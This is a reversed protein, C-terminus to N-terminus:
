NGGAAVRGDKKGKEGRRGMLGLEAIPTEFRVGAGRWDRRWEGEVGADEGARWRRRGLAQWCACVSFAWLTIWWRASGAGAMTSVRSGRNGDRGDGM